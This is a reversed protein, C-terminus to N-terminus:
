SLAECAEAVTEIRIATETPADIARGTEGALMVEEAVRALANTDCSTTRLTSSGDAFTVVVSTLMALGCPSPEVEPLVNMTTEAVRWLRTLQPPELTDRFITVGAESAARLIARTGDAAHFAATIGAEPDNVGACLSVVEARDCAVLLAPFALILATKRAARPVGACNSMMGANGQQGLGTM